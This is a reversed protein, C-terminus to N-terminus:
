IEYEIYEANKINKKKLVDEFSIDEIIMSFIRIPNSHTIILITDTDKHKSKLEQIFSEVREKVEEISEVNYKNGKAQKDILSFDVENMLKGSFTGFDRESLKNSVILPTNGKLEKLVLESTMLCRKRPSCYVHTINFKSSLEKGISIAQINGYPTIEAESNGGLINQNNDKSEAHRLLLIKM